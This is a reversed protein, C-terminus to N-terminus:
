LPNLPNAAKTTGSERKVCVPLLLFGYLKSRSQAELWIYNNQYTKLKFFQLYRFFVNRLTAQRSTQKVSKFKIVDYWAAHFLLSKPNFCYKTRNPFPDWTICKTDIKTCSSAIKHLRYELIWLRFFIGRVNPLLQLEIRNSLFPDLDVNSFNM